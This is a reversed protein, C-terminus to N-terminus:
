GRGLERQMMELLALHEKIMGRALKAVSVHERNRGTRLYEEQAELLGRHGAIQGQVYERDFAAGRQARDLQEVMRRGIDDLQARVEQDAPKAISGTVTVDARQMSKLIDAITEQEAVEFQAFMKVRENAAKELAIRSTALAAAGLKMTREMHETEARGMAGQAAAGQAQMPQGGQMPQARQGSNQAGSPQTTSPQTGQALAPTAMAAGLAALMM